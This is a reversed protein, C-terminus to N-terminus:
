RDAIRRGPLRSEAASVKRAVIRQCEEVDQLRTRHQRVVPAGEAVHSSCGEIGDVPQASREFGIGPSLAYVNGFGTLREYHFPVMDPANGQSRRSSLALYTM